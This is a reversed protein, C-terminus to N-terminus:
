AELIVVMGQELPNLYKKLITIFDDGYQAYFALFNDHREQLGNNPFFKSKLKRIQKVATDHKQKEARLLRGELQTVIKLQKTKEALITKVLTADINEALAGIAEYAKEVQMKPEALNLEHSANRKIYERILQDEDQLLDKVSIGLKQIRKNSNSDIWLVSDRRILMPFNIGYHAFQSQREMWYALEGGGGIYALNPLIMEQYLPRTIVNPSFREPHAEAEALIAAETFSYDTNLVQYEGNEYVIRERIQDRLYFLNIARPFAQMKFGADKLKEQTEEVLKESPRQLLEAKIVPLFLRKLDAQNMNLVVLGDAQFLANAFAIVADAYTSYKTHTDLLLDFIHQANDSTGLIAKLEALVPRLSETKMMGVSGKEENNWTLTKGFLHVHNVEEFDHDEGGTIFLPVFQYAPYQVRLVKALKITSIIKYIYYLPGTFLSPQHATILTFTNEQQLATINDLVASSTQHKEYQKNLVNVLTTRDIADKQKDAIVQAFQDIHVEYKYFDRLRADQNVYAKDRQSFQPVEAFPIRMM